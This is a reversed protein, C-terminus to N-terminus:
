EKNKIERGLLAIYRAEMIALIPYLFFGIAVMIITTIPDNNTVIISMVITLIIAALILAYHIRKFGIERSKKFVYVINFAKKYSDVVTIPIAVIIMLMFFYALILLILIIVLYLEGLSEPIFTILFIPISYYLGLALDKVGEKLYLTIDEFKPIDDSGNVIDELVKSLYGGQIVFLIFSILLGILVIPSSELLKLPEMAIELVNPLFALAVLLLGFVIFTIKEKFTHKISDIIFDKFNM